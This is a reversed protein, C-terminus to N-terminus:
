FQSLSVHLVVEKPQVCLWPMNHLRRGAGEVQVVTWHM